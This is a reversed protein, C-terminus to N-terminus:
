GSRASGSPVPGPPAAVPRLLEVPRRHIHEYVLSTRVDAVAPYQAVRDLVFNKLLTPGSVAVLLLFDDGGAVMFLDLVEPLTIVYNRFSEVTDRSKPHIRVALMAQVSRDLTDLDVEAHFGTIVGDEQLGRVRELCTSDAIGLTRALERNSRRANCQLEALLRRNVEDFNPMNAMKGHIKEFAM